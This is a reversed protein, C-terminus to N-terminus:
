NTQRRAEKPTIWGPNDEKAKPDFKMSLSPEFGERELFFATWPVAKTVSLSPNSGEIGERTYTRLLSAGEAARGDKWHGRILICDPTSDIRHYM